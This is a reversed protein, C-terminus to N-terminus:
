VASVREGAADRPSQGANVARRDSEARAETLTPVNRRTPSGHRRYWSVAIPAALGIAFLSATLGIRSLLGWDSLSVAASVVAGLYCALLVLGLRPLLRM